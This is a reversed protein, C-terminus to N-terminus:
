AFCAWPSQGCDRVARRPRQPLDISYRSVDSVTHHTAGARTGEAQAAAATLELAAAATALLAVLTHGRQTM